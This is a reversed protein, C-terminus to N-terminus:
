LPALVKFMDASLDKYNFSYPENSVKSLNGLEYIASTTEKYNYSDRLPPPSSSTKFESTHVGRGDKM